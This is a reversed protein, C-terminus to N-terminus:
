AAREPEPELTCVLGRRVHYSRRRDVLRRADAVRVGRVIVGREVFWVPQLLGTRLWAETVGAPLDFTADAAHVNIYRPCGM